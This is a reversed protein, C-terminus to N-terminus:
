FSIDELIRESDYYYIINVVRATTDNVVLVLVSGDTGLLYTATSHGHSMDELMNFRAYYEYVPVGNEQLTGNVTEVGNFIHPESDYISIGFLSYKRSSFSIGFQQGNYYIVSFDNKSTTYTQFGDTKNNPISLMSVFSPNQELTIGLETEISAQPLHVVNNLSKKEGWPIFRIALLIILIVPIIFIFTPIHIQKKTPISSPLPTERVPAHYYGDDDALSDQEQLDDPKTTDDDLQFGM